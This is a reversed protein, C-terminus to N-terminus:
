TSEDSTEYIRIWKLLEDPKFPKVVYDAAGLKQAKWITETEMKATLMIVPISSTKPNNKLRTLVQIGDMKPMMIDLLILHPKVTELKALAEEGGPCTIAHYDFDELLNGLTELLDLDDDVVLITKKAKKAM